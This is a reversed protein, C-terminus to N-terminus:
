NVPCRTPEIGFRASEAQLKSIRRLIGFPAARSPVAPELVEFVAEVSVRMGALTRVTKAQQETTELIMSAAIWGYDMDRKDLFLTFQEGDGPFYGVYGTTYVHQGSYRDPNAILAGPNVIAGAEGSENISPFPGKCELDPPQRSCSTTAICTAALLVRMVIAQM